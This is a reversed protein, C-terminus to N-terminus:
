SMIGHVSEGPEPLRDLQRAANAVRTLDLTTRKAAHRRHTYDEYLTVEVNRGTAEQEPYFAPADVSLPQLDAFPDAM